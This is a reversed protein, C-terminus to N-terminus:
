EKAMQSTFKKTLPHDIGCRKLLETTAIMEVNYKKEIVITAFRKQEDPTVLFALKEPAKRAATIAALAIIHEDPSYTTTMDVGHLSDFIGPM